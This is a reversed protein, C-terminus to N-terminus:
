LKFNPNHKKAIAMNKAALEKNGMMNYTIALVEYCKPYDPNMSLVKNFTYVASDGQKTQIYCVGLNFYADIYNPNVAIAKQYLRKAEELRGSRIYITGLNNIANQQDPSLKLAKNYQMEASDLRNMQYFAVGLDVNAEPYDPYIAIAKRLYPISEANYKHQSATDTATSYLHQLEDGVYYQLRANRPMKQLDAKYLTENSKWEANRAIALGAFLVVLPAVLAAVRVEKLLKVDHLTTRLLWQEIALAVAVCAGVSAFFLFRDAMVAGILFPINSFLSLTILYFLIAFAWNDKKVKVLRYMGVVILCGYLSLSLWVWPNGFNTFPISNYSYDCILPYPIFVLKLYNGLILCITALRSATNPAGALANDMFNLAASEGAVASQSLISARIALFLVTAAVMAGTLVISRKRNDNIYWFFVLPVVGLFTVVTEKSLYALFMAAFGALLAPLKGNTTFAIFLNLGAFAFLFCLLEDASKINAVVETHIPHVAFLLAALFALAMRQGRWFYHLFRFLLLVCCVFLLVNVVHGAAPSAGFLEREIAFLVLSLPRYTENAFIAYGKLHPTSLLEPVGKLGQSVITNKTIMMSDDLVYGNQITNAYVVVSVVALVIYLPMLPSRLKGQAQQGPKDKSGTTATAAVRGTPAPAAKKVAPKATGSAATKASQNKGKKNAM